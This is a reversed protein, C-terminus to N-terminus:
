AWGYPPNLREILIIPRDPRDVMEIIIDVTPSPNKHAM